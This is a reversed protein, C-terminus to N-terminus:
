NSSKNISGEAIHDEGQMLLRKTLITEALYLDMLSDIDLSSIPDLVVVRSNQGMLPLHLRPNREYNQLLYDTRIASITGTSRFLSELNQRRKFDGIQSEPFIFSPMDGELRQLWQAPHEVKCVTYVVDARSTVLKEIVRDIDETRMLPSNAQLVVAVQCSYGENQLLWDLAHKVVPLMPTEDAALFSPRLFPVEAGCAKAIRAIEEDETSVVVRDLAKCRLATSLTYYILPKGLLPRINKRPIGKSGGRAPIIGVINTKKM